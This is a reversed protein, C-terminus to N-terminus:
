GEFGFNGKKVRERKKADYESYLRMQSGRSWCMFEGDRERRGEEIEVVWL